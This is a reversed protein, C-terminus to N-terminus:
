DAENRLRDALRTYRRTTATNHVARRVAKPDGVIVVLKSARTLGTYFVNRQLMVFHQGLLPMVVAPYESGQSKHVSIAYALSIEDLDSYDYPVQIGDFNVIVVQDDPDISTIRGIDGNFVEKDYNNRTQMVKDNLRFQRDGRSLVM